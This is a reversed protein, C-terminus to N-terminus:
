GFLQGPLLTMRKRYEGPTMGSFEKFSRIFHAQDFYGNQLGTMTLNDTAYHLSHVARVFQILRQWSHSSVGFWENFLRFSHTRSYGFMDGISQNPRHSLSRIFKESAHLIKIATHLEATENIREYLYNELWMAKDLFSGPASLKDEIRGLAEIVLSGELYYDRIECLPLGFLAKVATPKMQIGFAHFRDFVMSLPRTHLGSLFCFHSLPNDEHGIKKAEALQIAPTLRFILEVKGSPLVKYHGPQDSQHEWILDVIGPLKKPIYHNIIM